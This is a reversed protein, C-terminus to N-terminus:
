PGEGIGKKFERRWVLARKELEGDVAPAASVMAPSAEATTSPSRTAVVFPVGQFGDLLAALDIGSLEAMSAPLQVVKGGKRVSELLLQRKEDDDWHTHDTGPSLDVIATRIEEIWSQQMGTSPDLAPTEIDRCQALELQYVASCRFIFAEVTDKETTPVRVIRPETSRVEERLQDAAEPPIWWATAWGPPPDAAVPLCCSVDDYIQRATGAPFSEHQVLYVLALQLTALDIRFLRRALFMTHREPPELELNCPYGRDDLWTALAEAAAPTLHRGVRALLKGWLVKAEADTPGMADLYTRRADRVAQPLRPLVDAIATGYGGEPAGDDMTRKMIAAVGYTAENLLPAGSMGPIVMDWRLKLLDHSEDAADEIRGVYDLRVSVGGVRGPLLEDAFAWSWITPPPADAPWAEDLPVCPHTDVAVELWAADPWPYLDSEDPEALLGVKDAPVDFSQGQWRVTITDGAVKAAAVVHAATLVFGPAVFFGTGRHEGDQEIRVTASRVLEHIGIGPLTV